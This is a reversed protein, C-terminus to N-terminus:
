RCQGYLWSAPHCYPTGAAQPYQGTGPFGGSPFVAAWWYLDAHISLVAFLVAMWGYRGLHEATRFDPAADLVEQIIKWIYVFPALATLASAASLVWSAITLYKYKGAYDLLRSLSSQKKM